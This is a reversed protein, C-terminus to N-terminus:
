ELRGRRGLYEACSWCLLAWATGASWGALVDTPWHVGLYVRSIGVAVTLLVALAMIYARMAHTELTAALLAGLTLFTLASMMSHGSPFSSTYIVQGHAVLDPRPRDFGWKLLSSLLIGTVVAAVLYLARHSKGRLLLFGAAAATLFALVAAGGVGTVDRALEEVWAQGIPDNRDMDSRFALLVSEDFRRTEGEFVEDAIELFLWVSLAALFAAVLPVAHVRFAPHTM